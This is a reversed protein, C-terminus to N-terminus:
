TRQPFRKSASSDRWQAFIMLSASASVSNQELTRCQHKRGFTNNSRVRQIKHSRLGLPVVQRGGTARPCRRKSIRRRRGRGEGDEHTTFCRYRRWPSCRCHPKFSSFRVALAISVAVAISVGIAISVTNGSASFDPIKALNPTPATSPSGLEAGTAQGASPDFLLNLGIEPDYVFRSAFPRVLLSAGLFIYQSSEPGSAALGTANQPAVEKSLLAGGIGSMIQGIDVQVNNQTLPAGDITGVIDFDFLMQMTETAMRFDTEGSQLQVVSYNAVM